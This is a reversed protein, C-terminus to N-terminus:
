NRHRPLDGVVRTMLATYYGTGCGAHVVREGENLDLAEIWACVGSPQGNNLHRSPDLAVLVDDYIHAPNGDPTGVYEGLKTPRMIRWPGPGLYNERPVEALARVLRESHLLAKQRILDSYRQRTSGLNQM